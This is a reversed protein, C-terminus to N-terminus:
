PRGERRGGTPRTLSLYDSERRASAGAGLDRRRGPRGRALDLVADGLFELRENHTELGEEFAFSRHTLALDRLAADRFRVGLAHEIRSGPSEETAPRM